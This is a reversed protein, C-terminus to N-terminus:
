QIITIVITKTTIIIRIGILRCNYEINTNVGNNVIENSDDCIAHIFESTVPFEQTTHIFESIVPFETLKTNIKPVNRLVLL